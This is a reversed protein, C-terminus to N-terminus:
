KELWAYSHKNEQIRVMAQAAMRKVKNIQFTASPIEIINEITGQSNEQSKHTEKWFNNMKM